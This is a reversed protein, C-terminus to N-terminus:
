IKDQQWVPYGYLSEEHTSSILIVMNKIRKSINKPVIKKGSYMRSQKPSIIQGSDFSDDGEMEMLTEDNFKASVYLKRDVTSKNVFIAQWLVLDSNKDNPIIKWDKFTVIIRNSGNGFYVSNEISYFVPNSRNYYNPKQFYIIAIIIIAFLCISFVQKAKKDKLLIKGIKKYANM